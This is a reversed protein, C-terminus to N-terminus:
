RSLNPYTATGCFALKECISHAGLHITTFGNRYLQRAMSPRGVAIKASSYLGLVLPLVEPFVDDRILLLNSM